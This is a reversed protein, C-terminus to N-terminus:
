SAEELTALDGFFGTIRALRGDPAEEVVDIGTLAITGDAAIMTWGYRAGGPHHDVGTSRELRARETEDDLNWAMLYGDARLELETM